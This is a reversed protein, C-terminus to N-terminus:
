SACSLWGTSDACRREHPDADACYQQIISNWSGGTAWMVSVKSCMTLEVAVLYSGVRKETGKAPDSKYGEKMLPVLIPVMIGASRSIHLFASPVRPPSMHLRRCDGPIM